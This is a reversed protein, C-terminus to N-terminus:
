FILLIAIAFIAKKPNPTIPYGIAPCRAVAPCLTV